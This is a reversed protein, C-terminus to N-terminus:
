KNKVQSSEMKDSVRRKPVIPEHANEDASRGAQDARFKNGEKLVAAVGHHAEDARFPEGLFWLDKPIGDCPKKVRFGQFAEIREDM